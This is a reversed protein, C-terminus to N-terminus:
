YDVVPSYAPPADAVAQPQSVPRLGGDQRGSPGIPGGFNSLYTDSLMRSHHLQNEGPAVGALNGTANQLKRPGLFYEERSSPDQFRLRPAAGQSGGTSLNSSSLHTVNPDPLFVVPPLQGRQYSRFASTDESLDIARQNRDRNSNRRHRYLLAVVVLICAAGGLAGGLIAGINTSSRTTTNAAQSSPSISHSSTGNQVVLYSLILPTTSNDGNYTVILRHSGMSYQPTQFYKENYLVPAGRGNLSFTKTPNDDITWTGTTSNGGVETAYWIV